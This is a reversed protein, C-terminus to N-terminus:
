AAKALADINQREVAFTLAIVWPNAQWSPVGNIKQWLLNFAGIPSECPVTGSCGLWYRGGGVREIGEAIADAEVISWLRQLRVDTVTLTLRSFERPLFISPWYKAGAILGDAAYSVRGDRAGQRADNITWVGTGTHTWTEKVWLRDGRQWKPYLRHVTEGADPHTCPVHWYPGPNGMPSPGSDIWAQSWDLADFIWRNSKGVVPNRGIPWGDLFLNNATALRRTQTKGTGPAEVERLQARVM